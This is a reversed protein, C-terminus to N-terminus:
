NHTKQKQNIQRQSAAIASTAIQGPNTTQIKENGGRICSYKQKTM